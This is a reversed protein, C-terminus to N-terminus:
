IVRVALVYCMPLIQFVFALSVHGSISSIIADIYRNLHRWPYTVAAMQSMPKQTNQLADTHDAIHRKNRDITKHQKKHLKWVTEKWKSHVHHMKRAGGMKSMNNQIESM